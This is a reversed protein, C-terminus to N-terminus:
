LNFFKNSIRLALIKQTRINDGSELKYKLKTESLFKATSYNEQGEQDM